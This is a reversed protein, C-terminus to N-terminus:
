TEKENGRLVDVKQLLSNTLFKEKKESQFRKENKGREKVKQGAENSSCETILEILNHFFSFSRAGIFYYSFNASFNKRFSLTAHKREYCRCKSCEPFTSM